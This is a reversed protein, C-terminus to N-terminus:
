PNVPTPPPPPTRDGGSPAIEESSPGELTPLPELEVPDSSRENTSPIWGQNTSNPTSTTPPPAAQRRIPASPRPAPAVNSSYSEVIRSERTKLRSLAATAAERVADKKEYIICRELATAAEPGGIQGLATAAAIKVDKYTDFKLVHILAPVARPDGLRGLELAGDRRSTHHNSYLKQAALNVPDIANAPATQVPPAAVVTPGSVITAPAPAVVVPPRSAAAAGAAFGIAPLAALGVGLGILAGSSPGVRPPPGWPVFRPGYYHGRPAFGPTRHVEVQRSLTGAPRRILIDREVGGPGRHIETKRELTRGRPGTVTVDREFTQASANTSMLCALVGVMLWRKRVLGSFMTSVGKSRTGRGTEEMGLQDDRESRPVM